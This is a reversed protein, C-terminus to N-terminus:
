ASAHLACSERSSLSGDANMVLLEAATMEALYRANEVAEDRTGFSAMPQGTGVEHVSWLGEEFVVLFRLRSASM